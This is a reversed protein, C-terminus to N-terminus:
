LKKFFLIQHGKEPLFVGPLAAPTARAHVLGVPTVNLM